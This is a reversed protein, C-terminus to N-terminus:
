KVREFRATIGCPSHYSLHPYRILDCMRDKGITYGCKPCKVLYKCSEQYAIVDAGHEKMDTTSNGVIYGYKEVRKGYIKFQYGHNWCDPCTHIIEHIIVEMVTREEPFLSKDLLKGRVEIKFERHNSTICRGLARTLRNNTSIGNIKRYPISEAECIELAKEFLENINWKEM